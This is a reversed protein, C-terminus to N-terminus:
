TRTTNIADEDQKMEYWEKARADRVFEGQYSTDLGEVFYVSMDELFSIRRASRPRNVQVDRWRWCSVYGTMGYASGFSSFAESKLEVSVLVIGIAATLAVRNTPAPFALSSPV